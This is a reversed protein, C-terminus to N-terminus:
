APQDDLVKDFALAAAGYLATDDGLNSVLLRSTGWLTPFAHNPIARRTPALLVEGLTAVGGGIITLRPNFLNVFMGIAAGLARGAREIIALAAPDGTAAVAGVISPTMPEDGAARRLAEGYATGAVIKAEGTIAWGGVFAELCGISGCHCRPGDIAVPIHGVEGGFGNAGEVLVGNTLIGGGVGTGLALYVLNDVDVGRGFRAEGLTACNGDNGAALPRDTRARFADVLPFDRWGRLNPTFAVIGRRSDVPGPVAVGAPTSPALGAEDAVAGLVAVIQDVVAEPGAKAETATSHRHSLRGDRDVVAARLNTGGLDVALVQRTM